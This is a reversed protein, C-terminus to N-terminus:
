PKGRRSLVVAVRRDVTPSSLSKTQLVRRWRGRTKVREGIIRKENGQGHARARLGLRKTKTDELIRISSSYVEIFSAVMSNLLM